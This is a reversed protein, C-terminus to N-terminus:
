AMVELHDIVEAADFGLQIGKAIWWLNQLENVKRVLYGIPVGIGIPDEKPFQSARKLRLKRMREEFETLMGSVQYETLAKQLCAHFVNGSLHTLAKEFDTEQIISKFVHFSISGFDVYCERPDMDHLALIEPDKIIRLACLINSQDAYMEFYERLYKNQNLLAAQETRLGAYFAKELLLELQAGQLLHLTKQNKVLVETFPIKYTVMKTLLIDLNKSSSLTRLTRYPIKGSRVFLRQIESEDVSGLVGRVVTFINQMDRFAFLLAIQEWEADAYFRQFDLLIKESEDALFAQVTQIGCTTTLAREISTRYPSKVLLSLFGDINTARTLEELMERTMLRSIRARLRTNGYDFTSM